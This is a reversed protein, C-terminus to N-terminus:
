WGLRAEGRHLREAEAGFGAGEHLVLPPAITLPARSGKIGRVLVRHAPEGARPHVALITTAGFRRDFAALIAPLATAAHVLILTGKAALLDLCALVWDALSVGEDLVHAARRGPEPSARTSAAAHFPPNTVILDAPDPLARRRAERDLVDCLAVAVRAGLANANINTRALAALDAEREVLRLRADPCALAVGLGAAGVGSGLDYALGAFARPVAAALLVADTGSRHGWAPQTLRLRGGYFSDETFSRPAPAEAM